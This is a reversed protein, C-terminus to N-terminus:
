HNQASGHAALLLVAQGAVRRIRGRAGQHVVGASVKRSSLRWRHFKRERLVCGSKAFAKPTRLRGSKAWKRLLALHVGECQGQGAM